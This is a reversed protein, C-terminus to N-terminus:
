DEMTINIFYFWKIINQQLYYRTKCAIYEPRMEMPPTPLPPRAVKSRRSIFTRYRFVNFAFTNLKIAKKKHTVNIYM